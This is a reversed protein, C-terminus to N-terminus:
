GNRKGIMYKSGELIELGMFSRPVAMTSTASLDVELDFVGLVGLRSIPM